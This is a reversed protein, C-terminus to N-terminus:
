RPGEREGRGAPRGVARVRVGAGELAARVRSAITAAGPTDGHLCLTRVRVEVAGGGPVEVLGDRALSVAQRAAAEPSDHLAGAEGRPVLTGDRRYRRDVFGEAVTTVGAGAGQALLGGTPPGVLVLLPDAARLARIVAEAVEPEAAAAHYLAGHPKVLTVPVGVAAAARLLAEIQGRLSAYLSEPDITLRTRGFGARDPFSPHAAVALRHEFALELAARMSGADGAHGGCAVNITTAFPAIAADDWGEGGDFNLDITRPGDGDM